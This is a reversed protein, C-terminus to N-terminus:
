SLALEAAQAASVAEDSNDVRHCVVARHTASGTCGCSASDAGCGSSRHRDAHSLRSGWAVTSGLIPLVGRKLGSEQASGQWRELVALAAHMLRGAGEQRVKCTNCARNLM